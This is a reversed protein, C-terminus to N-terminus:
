VLRAKKEFDEVFSKGSRRKSGENLSMLGIFLFFIPFLILEATLLYTQAQLTQQIEISYQKFFLYPLSFCLMSFVYVSVWYATDRKRYNSKFGVIEGTDSRLIEVRYKMELYRKVWYDADQFKLFFEMEEYNISENDFIKKALRDKALQSKPLKGEEIYDEAHKLGNSIKESSNKNRDKLNNLWYNLLPLALSIIFPVIKIIWDM